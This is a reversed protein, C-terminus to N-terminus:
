GASKPPNEPPKATKKIEAPPLTKETPKSEEKKPPEKKPKDEVALSFLLSGPFSVATDSYSIVFCDEPATVIEKSHGLIDKVKALPKNKKVKQGPKVFFKIVGSENCTINEILRLRHPTKIKTELEWYHPYDIMGLYKLINKVGNTGTRVFPESITNPGGLEVTIAPINKGILSFVMGQELQYKKFETIEETVTIGFKNAFEWVKDFVPQLKKDTMKEVIIYPISNYTDAHLDILFVPKTNLIFNFISHNIRETTTGGADGPFHRNMNALDYPNERKGLEFGLPNAIPLFYIIGRKLSGRKLFKFVRHIVEIGNVEDGHLAATVWLVPGEKGSDLMIVPLQHKAGDIGEFCEITKIELKLKIEPTIM